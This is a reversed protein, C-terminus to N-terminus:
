RGRWYLALGLCLMGPVLYGAPPYVQFSGYTTLGLGIWFVLDRLNRSFWATVKVM